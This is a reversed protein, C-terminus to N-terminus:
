GNRIYCNTGEAGLLEMLAGNVEDPTEEPVVHGADKIERLVIGPILRTYVDMGNPPMLHDRSGWIGIAPIRLTQLRRHEGANWDYAHLLDRLALSYEPFQTPAWYEEVDRETFQARKGYARRLALEVVLRPRFRRVVPNLFAPTLLRYLWMPPVGSLGVPSWLGLCKARQPHSSAFHYILSAGMSHGVLSPRELGLADLIDLLHDVLADIVYEGEGLPKDSLGHGKLDFAIARFGGDALPAMNKRFVYASSGWGHVLLVPPAHADGREVTRIRIGSRLRPFSVRYEPDGGPFMEAPSLRGGLGSRIM